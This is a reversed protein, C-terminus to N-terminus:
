YNHKYYFALRFACASLPVQFKKALTKIAEDSGLDFSIKELEEKFIEKPMLLLCAFLNAEDELEKNNIM